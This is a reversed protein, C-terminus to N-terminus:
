ANIFEIGLSEKVSWVAEADKQIGDGVVNNVEEMQSNQVRDVMRSNIKKLFIFKISDFALHWLLDLVWVPLLTRKTVRYSKCFFSSLLVKSLLSSVLFGRDM